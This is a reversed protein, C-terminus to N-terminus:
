PEVILHDVLDSPSSMELDVLKGNEHSNSMSTLNDTEQEVCLIQAEFAALEEEGYVELCATTAVDVVDDIGSSMSRGQSDIANGNSSPDIDHFVRLPQNAIDNWGPSPFINEIPASALVDLPPSFSISQEDDDDDARKPIDNTDMPEENYEPHNGCHHPREVEVDQPMHSPCPNELSLEDVSIHDIQGDDDDVNPMPYLEDNTDMQEESLGPASAFSPHNGSYHLSEANHSMQYLYSNELDSRLSPPGSVASPLEDVLTHHHIQESDVDANPGLYPGDNSYMPERSREGSLGLASEFGSHDASYHLSEADQYTHYLYSNSLRPSSPGPAHSVDLPLDDVTTHNSGDGHHYLEEEEEEEGVEEENGLTDYDVFVQSSLTTESEEAEGEVCSIEDFQTGGANMADECISGYHYQYEDPSSSVHRCLVASHFAGEDAAQSEVLYEFPTETVHVDGEEFELSVSTHAATNDCVSGQLAGTAEDLSVNNHNEDTTGNQGSIFPDSVTSAPPLTDENSPISPSTSIEAANSRPSLNHSLTPRDSLPIISDSFNSTFVSQSDEPSITAHDGRYPNRSDELICDGAQLVTDRFTGTPRQRDYMCDMGSTRVELYSQEPLSEQGYIGSVVQDQNMSAHILDQAAFRDTGSTRVELYSQEPLSQRGYMGGVVQDQNMSAHIPDQAASYDTGSTRVELYAQSALDGNCPRRTRTCSEAETMGSDHQRRVSMPQEVYKFRKPTPFESENDLGNAVSHPHLRTRKQGAFVPPVYQVGPNQVLNNNM